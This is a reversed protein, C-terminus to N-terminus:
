YLQPDIYVVKLFINHLHSFDGDTTLITGNFFAATSAIWLDNKGMKRASGTITM